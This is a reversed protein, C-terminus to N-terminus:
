RSVTFVYGVNLIYMSVTALSRRAAISFFLFSVCEGLPRTCCAASWSAPAPAGMSLHFPAAPESRAWGPCRM